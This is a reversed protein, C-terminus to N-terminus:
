AKPGAADEVVVIDPLPRFQDTREPLGYIGLGCPRQRHSGGETRVLRRSAARLDTRVIGSIASRPRNSRVRETARDTGPSTHGSLERGSEVLISASLPTALSESGSRTFSLLLEKGSGERLHKGATICEAASNGRLHDPTQFLRGQGAKARRSRHQHAGNGARSRDRGGLV